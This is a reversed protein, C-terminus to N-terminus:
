NRLFKYSIMEDYKEGKKVTIIDRDLINHQPEIALGRRLHLDGNVFEVDTGSNDFYINLADYTTRVYLKYDDNSLIVQRKHKNVEDFLFTHDINKFPIVKEIEKMRLGLKSLKTFNLAHPVDIVRLPLLHENMEFCKSACVKLKYDSLDGSGFNFYMHNSINLITDESPTCTFRINFIDSDKYIEYIVHLIIRGPFGNDYDKSVYSFDVKIAKANEKIKYKFKRYSLNHKGGHLVNDFENATLDFPKGLVEQHEVLRGAVRGLTKGFYQPSHLFLSKDKLTLIMPNNEFKLSYVSAGCTCLVVSLNANNTVEIFDFGEVNDVIKYEM